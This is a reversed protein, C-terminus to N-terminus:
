KYLGTDFNTCFENFIKTVKEQDYKFFGKMKYIIRIENELIMNLNDNYTGMGTNLSTLISITQPSIRKGLYLKFIVPFDSTFIDNLTYTNREAELLLTSLDDSFIKTISEKVKNWQIYNSDAEEGSYIMNPNGYVFNAVMYQILERDTDFKRALKDFLHRDNRANFSEYSGKVNSNEFVNFKDSSFHLKLAVYYRFAKFGNM